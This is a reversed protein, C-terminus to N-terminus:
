AAKCSIKRRVRLIWVSVLLFVGTEWRFTMIWIGLGTLLALTFVRIGQCISEPLLCSLVAGGDLPPIPLLNYCGQILGCLAAEPFKEATLVMVFSGLPGAVACLAMKWSFMPSADIRAGFAGLTVSLIQGGCLFIAICHFAEHVMAALIMGVVWRLPLLLLALAGMLFFGPSIAVKNGM